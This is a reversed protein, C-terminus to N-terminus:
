RYALHTVDALAVADVHAGHDWLLFFHNRICHARHELSPGTTRFSEACDCINAIPRRRLSEASTGRVLHQVVHVQIKRVQMREIRWHHLRRTYVTAQAVLM